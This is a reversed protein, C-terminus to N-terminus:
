QGGKKERRRGLPYGALRHKEEIDYAVLQTDRNMNYM